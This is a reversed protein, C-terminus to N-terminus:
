FVLPVIGPKVERWIIDEADGSPGMGDVSWSRDTIKDSFITIILPECGTNVVEMYMQRSAKKGQKLPLPLATYVM